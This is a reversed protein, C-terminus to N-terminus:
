VVLSSSLRSSVLRSSYPTTCLSLYIYSGTTRYQMTISFWGEKKRKYGVCVCVYVCVPLSWSGVRFSGVWSVTASDCRGFGLAFGEILLGGENSRSVGRRSVRGIGDQRTGSTMM